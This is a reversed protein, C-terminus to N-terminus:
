TGSVDPTAAADPAAAPAANQQMGNPNNFRGHGGRGGKGGQGNLGNQGNLSDQGNMLGNNGNKMRGGKGFGSNSFQYGCNPCVGSRLAQQDQYAKLILDAQEQTMSGAEVYAKLETELDTLRSGSRAAQLAEMAAQLAPDVTTTAAATADTAPQEAAPVEATEAVASVGLTLALVLALILSTIKWNTKM